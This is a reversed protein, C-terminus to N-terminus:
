TRKKARAKAQAATRPKHCEKCLIQLNNQHHICSWNRHAGDAPVIHDVDPTQTWTGCIECAYWAAAKKLAEKARTFRHNAKYAGNCNTSCWRKRQGILKKGCWDCHGPKPHLLVCGM